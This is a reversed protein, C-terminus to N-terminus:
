FLVVKEQLDFCAGTLLAGHHTLVIMHLFQLGAQKRRKHLLVSSNWVVVVNIILLVEFLRRVQNSTYKFRLRDVSVKQIRNEMTYWSVRKLSERKAQGTLLRSKRNQTEDQAHASGSTSTVDGWSWVAPEPNFCFTLSM